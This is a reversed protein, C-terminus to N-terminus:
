VYEAGDSLLYDLAALVDAFTGRRGAPLPTEPGDVSNELIGPSIQNVTIGGPALERAYSRTLVTVGLKAVHYDTAQPRAVVRDSGSDGINIVRAPPSKRLLPVALMILHHIAGLSVELTERWQEATIELLPRPRYLGVNNILIQLAGAERHVAEMLGERETPRSLDAGVTLARAGRSRAERAVREVEERASHRHLILTRGPAALHLAMERGLGRGAGTILANPFPIM